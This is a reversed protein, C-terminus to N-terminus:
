EQLNNSVIFENAARNALRSSVTAKQARVIAFMIRGVPAGRVFLVLFL